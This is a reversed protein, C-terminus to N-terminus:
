RSFAAVRGFDSTVVGRCHNGSFTRGGQKGTLLTAKSNALNKAM